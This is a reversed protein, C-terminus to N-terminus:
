AGSGLVAWMIPGVLYITLYVAYAIQICVAFSKEQKFFFFLYANIVMDCKEVPQSSHVVQRSVQGTACHSGCQAPRM